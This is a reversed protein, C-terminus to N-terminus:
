WTEGEQDEHAVHGFLKTGAFCSCSVEAVMNIGALSIYILCQLVIASMLDTCTQCCIIKLKFHM